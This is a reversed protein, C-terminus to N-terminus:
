TEGAASQRCVALGMGVLLWLVPTAIPLNINVVAQAQYCLMGMLCALLWPCNSVQKAMQRAADGMFALYAALAFPGITVLYQLYENHASEFYISFRELAEARYDWTLIGFTDPGYGFLKHLLPQNVYSEWAARWCFGRNTGWNDDFVVYGSVSAYREAHGCLNADVLVAVVVIGAAALLIKWLTKLREGMRGAAGDPQKRGWQYFGLAMGWLLAIWVFILSSGGLVEIISSFGIVRDAMRRSIVEVLKLVSFFAAVLMVYRAIEKAARYAFFPLVLFLVALALYANDSQGTIIAFFGIVSLLYYCVARLLGKEKLFLSSSVGLMVGVYATYTNVNGITSTFIAGQSPDVNTKWGLLNMQFYDTIGFLCVLLSVVLFLDLHWRRVVALKAVLLTGLAYLTLLFLGNFRGENGWFSEYVYDSQVTSVACFLWFFFLAWYVPPQKKLNQFRFQQLFARRNKGGYELQDILAFVLAALLCLGLFVLVTIWYFKYKATLIDFYYDHYYLPFVGLIVCLFASTIGTYVKQATEALTNKKEEM